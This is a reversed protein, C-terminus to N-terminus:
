RLSLRSAELDVLAALEELLLSLAGDVDLPDESEDLPEDLEELSEFDDEDDPDEDDDDPEDLEPLEVGAAADFQGTIWLCATM